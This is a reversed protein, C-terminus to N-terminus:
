WSTQGAISRTFYIKVIENLKESEYRELVKKLEKESHEEMRKATQVTIAQKM